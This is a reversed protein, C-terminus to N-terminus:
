PEVWGCAPCYLDGSAEDLDFRLTEVKCSPCEPNDASRLERIEEDTLTVDRFVDSM